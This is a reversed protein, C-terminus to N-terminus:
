IEGPVCGVHAVVSQLSNTLMISGFPCNSSNFGGIIYSGGADDVVIQRSVEAGEGGATDLWQYDGASASCLGVMLILWPVFGTGQFMM